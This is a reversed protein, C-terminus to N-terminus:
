KGYDYLINNCNEIIYILDKSDTVELYMNNDIIHIKKGKKYNDIQYLFISSKITIRMEIDKYCSFYSSEKEMHIVIGYYKDIYICVDYFGEINISYNDKLVNFLNKLYKELEKNNNFDIDKIKENMIYIDFVDEDIYNIKM